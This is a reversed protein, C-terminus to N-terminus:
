LRGTHKLRLSASGAFVEQKGAETIAYEIRGNRLNLPQTVIAFGRKVLSDLLRLTESRTNWTWGCGPSWKGGNRDLLTELAVKQKRGLKMMTTEEVAILTEDFSRCTLLL